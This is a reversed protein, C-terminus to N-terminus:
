VLGRGHVRWSKLRRKAAAIHGSARHRCPLAANVMGNPGLVCSLTMFIRLGALWVSIASTVSSLAPETRALYARARAACGAHAARGMFFRRSVIRANRFRMVSMCSVSARV